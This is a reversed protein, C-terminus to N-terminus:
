IYQSLWEPLEPDETTWTMALSESRTWGKDSESIQERCCRYENIKNGERRYENWYYSDGYGQWETTKYITMRDQEQRKHHFIENFSIGLREAYEPYKSIQNILNITLIRESVSAYM